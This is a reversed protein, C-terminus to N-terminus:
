VMEITTNNEINDNYEKLKKYYYLIEYERELKTYKMGFIETYLDVIIFCDIDTVRGKNRDIRNLLKKLQEQM